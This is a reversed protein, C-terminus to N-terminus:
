ILSSSWPITGAEDVYWNGNIYYKFLYEEDYGPIEVYNYAVLDEEPYEVTSSCVAICMKTAPDIEAYNYYAQTAM